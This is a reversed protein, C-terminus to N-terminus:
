PESRTSVQKTIGAVSGAARGGTHLEHASSINGETVQHKIIGASFRARVDSSHHVCLCVCMYVCVCLVQSILMHLSVLVSVRKISSVPELAAVCILFCISMMADKDFEDKQKFNFRRVFEAM